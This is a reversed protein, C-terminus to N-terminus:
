PRAGDLMVMVRLIEAVSWAQAPCGQPRQPADGDYVEAIQGVCGLPGRRTESISMEALIPELVGRAERKAAASFGGVRLVAEAYPGLLWPWATGNHYARDREFLNGEYRGRFNPDAPDLTRVGLPTLLRERVVALVSRQQDSTLASNALSVAFLQNPRIEPSPDWGPGGGRPVLCDYMCGLRENWFHTRLSRGVAEALDRLSAGMAADTDRIAEGLERLAAHWLANIEVAKGHRPTFTVGDRKADMWTLQTGTTGATILKDQPDMAINFDTGRRYCAVIDLCAPALHGDWAAREGTALAKRRYACAGLIFWLSADVTNYEPEGTRDNFVNPVIGNRRHSAFALLTRRADDMRGTALMLGALSVSTDRGWDAFWPYGAIVSTQDLAHTGPSERAVVFADTAAVLPAIAKDAGGAAGLMGAFRARRVSLDRAGDAIAMPTTAAQITAGAESEGAGLTLHFEGPSFLDEVCDQGREADMQYHFDYWWQPDAHFTAWDSRLHLETGQGEFTIRAGDPAAATSFRDSTAKRTLWHFDRLATMPRVRLEIGKGSDGALRRLRYRVQAANTRDLLHLEKIIEVAAGGERAEYTWRCTLDQEFRRLRSLGSPHLVPPSGAFRFTSLDITTEGGGLVLWEVMASLAMVRGVPPSQAAILLGHYRRAPVGAVTGMAFGGLCNTLLWEANLLRDNGQPGDADLRYTPYAPTSAAPRPAAAVPPATPPVSRPAKSPTASKAPPM